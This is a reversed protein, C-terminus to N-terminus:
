VKGFFQILSGCKYLFPLNKKCKQGLNRSWIKQHITSILQKFQIDRKTSYRCTHQQLTTGGVAEYCCELNSFENIDNFLGKHPRKIRYLHIQSIIRTYNRILNHIYWEFKSITSYTSNLKPNNRCQIM